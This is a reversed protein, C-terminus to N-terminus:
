ALPIVAHIQFGKAPESTIRFSGGLSHVRERMGRLGFHASRPDLWSFHALDCGIGDDIITLALRDHRHDLIVDVHSASAHRLSNTISEQVVRFCIMEVDPALREDGLNEDLRVTMMSNQGIVELHWRLAPILGLDDLQPPRLEHVIRRVTKMLENTIQRANKFPVAGDINAQKRRIMELNINLAALMQGVEDHLEMSLRRREEEIKKRQVEANRDELARLREDMLKRETIDQATGAIRYVAGAANRVANGSAKVWRTSGDPRLVRFEPFDIADLQGAIKEALYAEVDARDEPHVIDLWAQPREYVSARTVGTLEDYAPSIYHMKSWDPSVLWFVEHINEALERFNRESTQLESKTDALKEALKLSLQRVKEESDRLHSIDAVSVITFPKSGVLMPGLGVEVPFEHGDKRLGFLERNSGMM